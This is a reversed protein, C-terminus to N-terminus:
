LNTWLCSSRLFGIEVKVTRGTGVDAGHVAVVVVVALLSIRGLSGALALLHVINQSARRGPFIDIPGVGNAWRTMVIRCVKHLHLNTTRVFRHTDKVFAHATSMLPIILLVNSTGAAFSSRRCDLVSWQGVSVWLSM